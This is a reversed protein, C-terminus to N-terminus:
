IILPRGLVQFNIKELLLAIKQFNLSYSRGTQGYYNHIRVTIILPSVEPEDYRNHDYSTYDYKAYNVPDLKSKFLLNNKLIQYAENIQVTKRTANPDKNIDPHFKLINKRYTRTLKDLDYNGSIDLIQQADQISMGQALVIFKNILYSIKKFNIM